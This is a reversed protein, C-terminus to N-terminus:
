AAPPSPEDTSKAFSRPKWTGERVSCRRPPHASARDWPVRGAAPAAGDRSTSGPQRGAAVAPGSVAARIRVLPRGLPRRLPRRPAPAGARPGATAPAAEGGPADPVARPPEEPNAVARMGLEPVRTNSTRAPAGTGPRDPASRRARLGTRSGRTRPGAAATSRCPPRDPTARDVPSTGFARAGSRIRTRRAGTGGTRDPAPARGLGPLTGRPAIPGLSLRRGLPVRAAPVQGVVRTRFGPPTDGRRSM